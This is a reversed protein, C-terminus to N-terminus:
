FFTSCPQPWTKVAFLIQKRWGDGAIIQLDCEFTNDTTEQERHHL